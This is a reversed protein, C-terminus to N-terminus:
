LRNPGIREVPILQLEPILDFVGSDEDFVFVQRAPDYFGPSDSIELNNAVEGYQKVAEDVGRPGGSVWPANFVLNDRVINYKPLDPRDDALNVLNPYANRWAESDVPTAELGQWLTRYSMAAWTQYAIEMTTYRIARQGDIFLNHIAVNDRGGNFMFGLKVNIMINGEVRTGSIGDDLYVASPLHTGDAYGTINRLLNHRIINGRGVWSRGAYIAAMDDADRVVDHIHNLEILHDNGEFSIAMHPGSHIENNRAIQGVGQLAIAPNYTKETRAFNHIVSNEVIHGAPQLEAKDGGDLQIGSRGTNFIEAGAVLNAEGGGIVIGHRGTNSIKCNLIQIYNSDLVYIGRGRTHSFHIGEFVLHQADRIVLLDGELLSLSVHANESDVLPYLYLIGSDRDLYWEGPTDLEELLNYIFFRQNPRVSYGSPEVTRIIGNEADIEAVTVSQDSWNYFWYGFMRIDKAKVWEALKNQDYKFAFGQPPDDRKDEPVWHHEMVRGGRADDMWARIVDGPEVVSGVRTFGENPYRALLLPQGDFFLEPAVPGRRYHTKAQLFQMSHGYLPLAGYNYIGREKLNLQVVASRAAPPIRQLVQPDRVSQFETIAWTPGGSLIVPEAPNARYVVPAGDVGSDEAVFSLTEALIYTGGAVMVEVGHALSEPSESRLTRIHDRAQAISGFPSDKLGNGNGAGHTAVHLLLPAAKESSTNYRNMTECGSVAFLCALLSLSSTYISKMFIM